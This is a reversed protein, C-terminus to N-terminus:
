RRPRSRSRLRVAARVKTKKPPTGEEESESECDSEDENHASPASRQIRNARHKYDKEWAELNKAERAKIINFFNICNQALVPLSFHFPNLLQLV